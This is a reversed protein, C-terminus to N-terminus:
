IPDVDIFIHSRYNFEREFRLVASRINLKITTAGSGRPLAIRFRIGGDVPIKMAPASLAKSLNYSMKKLRGENTDSICVDAFREFPPLNFAKREELMTSIARADARFVPHASKGTQVVLRDSRAALRYLMQMSREDSRFDEKRFFADAQLVAILGVRGLENQAASATRVTVFKGPFLESIAGDIEEPKEWGRVLVTEDAKRIEEILKRSFMGVMGNKAREDVTDIIMAELPKRDNRVLNYKGNKINVETEFSSCATGLLVEAGHIKGLVVAADRGNYRPNPETQKYSPDQEEDVIILGLDRFPLFLASRTGIVLEPATIDRILEATKRRRVPTQRSSYVLLNDGFEDQLANQLNDGLATEPVLFLVGRGRSLTERAKSVYMEFRDPSIIVSPKSFVSPKPTREFELSAVQNGNSGSDPTETELTRKKAKLAEKEAGAKKRAAIRAATEESRIRSGPYAANYIEGLSCLYYGSLFEWFKLEEASISPLGEAIGSVPHIREQAVDPEIDCIHVVGVYEKNAMAVRVRDGPKLDLDTVYVPEWELRVPLIVKIYRSSGM